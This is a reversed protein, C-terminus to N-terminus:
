SAGSLTSGGGGMLSGSGRSRRRLSEAKPRIWSYRNTAHGPRIAHEAGVPESLHQRPRRHGLSHEKGARRGLMNRLGLTISEM